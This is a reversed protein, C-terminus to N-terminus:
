TSLLALSRKLRDVMVGFVTFLGYNIDAMNNNLLGRSLYVYM